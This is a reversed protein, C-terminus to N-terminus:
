VAFHGSLFEGNGVEFPVDHEEEYAEVFQDSFEGNMETSLENLADVLRMVKRNDWNVGEADRNLIDNRIAADYDEGYSRFDPEYPKGFHNFVIFSRIDGSFNSLEESVADILADFKDQESSDSFDQAVQEVETADKCKELAEIQEELKAKDTELDQIYATSDNLEKQVAEYDSIPIKEPQPLGEIIPGIVGLFAKKKSNWRATNKAELGLSECIADGFEDLEAEDDILTSETTKLVGSVDKFGLPPVVLPLHDKSMAWTAGLECLCFESAYYNKSVVSIVLEPDNIQSKIVELFDQGKKPGLGATSSCFFRRSPIDLGTQLFDIIKEVLEKDDAAHSIFINPERTTTM